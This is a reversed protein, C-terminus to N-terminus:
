ANWAPTAPPPPIWSSRRLCPLLQRLSCTIPPAVDQKKALAQLHVIHAELQQARATNQQKWHILALV